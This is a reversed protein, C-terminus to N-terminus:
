EYKMRLKAYNEGMVPPLCDIQTQLRDIKKELMKVSKKLTRYQIKEQQNMYKEYLFRGFEKGCFRVFFCTLVAAM